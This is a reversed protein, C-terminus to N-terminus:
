VQLKKFLDTDYQEITGNDCCEALKTDIPLVDVLPVGTIATVEEAKSPGFIDVRVRCSPCLFYSMNEILGLVPVNMAGAMKMAKKVVMVALDQPSSVIVLGDLPITQMVTLPVDATGPPLDIFLYDLEGWDVETWFQKITGAIM